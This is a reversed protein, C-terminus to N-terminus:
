EKERRLFSAINKKLLEHEQSLSKLKEQTETHSQELRKQRAIIDTIDINAICCTRDSQRKEASPYLYATVYVPKEDKSYYKLRINKFSAGEKLVKLVTERFDKRHKKSLLTYPAKGVVQSAAYGFVAECEKNWYCLREKQNVKLIPFTDPSDIPEARREFVTDALTDARVKNSLDQATEELTDELLTDVAGKGGGNGVGPPLYPKESQSGPSFIRVTDVNKQQGQESYTGYGRKRDFLLAFAFITLLAVSYIGLSHIRSFRTPILDPFGYDIGALYSFLAVELLIVFAWLVGGRYGLCFVAILVVSGNMIMAPNMPANEKMAGTFWTILLCTSWLILLAYNASWALNKMRRMLVISSIMLLGSFIITYFLTMAGSYFYFLGALPAMMVFAVQFVNMAKVRLSEEPDLGRMGSSLFDDILSDLNM